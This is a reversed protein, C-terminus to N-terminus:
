LNKISEILMEIKEENNPNCGKVNMSLIRITGSSKYEDLYGPYRIEDQNNNGQQIYDMITLNELQVLRNIQQYNRIENEPQQQYNSNKNSMMLTSFRIKISM